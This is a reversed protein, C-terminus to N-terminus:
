RTHRAITVAEALGISCTSLRASLEVEEKGFYGPVDERVYSVVKGLGNFTVTYLYWYGEEGLQRVHPVVVRAQKKHAYHRVALVLLCIAFAVFFVKILNVLTETSAGTEVWGVLANVGIITGAVAVVGAFGKIVKKM